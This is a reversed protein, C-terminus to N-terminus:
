GRELSQPVVPPEPRALSHQDVAGGAAHAAERDLDRSREARVDGRDAARSVHLHNTGESGVPDHVVMRAKTVDMIGDSGDRPM